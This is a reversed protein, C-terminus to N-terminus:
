KAFCSFAVRDITVLLINAHKNALSETLSFKHKEGQILRTLCRRQQTHTNANTNMLWIHQISMKFQFCAFHSPLINLQFLATKATTNLDFTKIRACSQFTKECFTYIPTALPAAVSWLLYSLVILPFPLEAAFWM